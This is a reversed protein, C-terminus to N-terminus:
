KRSWIQYRKEQVIVKSLMEETYCQESNLNYINEIKDLLSRVQTDMDDGTCRNSVHVRGGSCNNIFDKAFKPLTEMYFKLDPNKGADEMDAQWQDLHTFVVITFRHIAQGFCKGYEQFVLDDENTLRGMAVCLLFVNQGPKTMAVSQRIDATLNRECNGDFIGPTDIVLLSHGFRDKAKRACNYTNLKGEPSSDFEHQGLISNGTSSKGTGAKGLLIMNFTKSSAQLVFNYQIIYIYFLSQKLLHSM